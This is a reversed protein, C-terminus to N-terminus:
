GILMVVTVCYIKASMSLFPIAGSLRRAGRLALGYIATYIGVFSDM